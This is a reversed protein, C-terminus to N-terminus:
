TRCIAEEGFIEERVPALIERLRARAKFLQSKSTGAAVGLMDGIEAHTYGEVDHLVLVQRMRDPLREIARELRGRLLVPNRGAVQPLVEPLPTERGTQRDRGRRGQLASNVAVRHLWTGFKADGRFDPLARIVRIWTEQAWDEAMAEDDAFRRVVAYVRAAHRDYLARIAGEDGHRAREILEVETM